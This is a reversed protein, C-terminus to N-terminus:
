LADPRLRTNRPGVDHKAPANRAEFFWYFYHKDGTTLHYYGSSQKVTRDCLTSNAGAAHSIVELSGPLASAAAAVALIATLM